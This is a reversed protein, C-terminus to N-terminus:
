IKLLNTQTEIGKDRLIPVIVVSVGNDSAILATLQDILLFIDRFTPFCLIVVICRLFKIKVEIYIHIKENWERAVLGPREQSHTRYKAQNGGTQQRSDGIVKKCLSFDKGVIKLNSKKLISRLFFFLKKKFQSVLPYLIRGM